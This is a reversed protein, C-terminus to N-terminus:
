QNEDYKFIKKCSKKVTAFVKVFLEKDGSIHVFELCRSEGEPNKVVNVILVTKSSDQNVTLEVRFYDESKVFKFGKKKSIDVVADVLQDGDDAVFFKTFKKLKKSKTPKKKKSKSEKEEDFKEKGKSQIQQKRVDFLEIIEQHSLVPGNFWEHEKVEKLSLRRDSDYRTMKVFLDKFSESFDEDEYVAWFKDYEKNYLRKYYRDNPEARVFPPHQSLLIFLIVASAFLDGDVGRYERAELIEPSMYGYTGKKSKSVSDQTTFGFDAVKLNYEGDLLLNEPKIDRHYYGESHMFELTNLLQHFYYRAEPESFKGSEAIFDFIEGNEAYEMVIYNVPLESGDDKIAVSKDSYDILKVINPHQLRSMCEVENFFIDNLKSSTKDTERKMLKMAVWEDNQDKALKVKSFAGSGVTSVLTYNDITTM